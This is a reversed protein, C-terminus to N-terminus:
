DRVTLANLITKVADKIARHGGQNSLIIVGVQPDRSFELYSTFGATLGSKSWTRPESNHIDWSYGIDTMGDGSGRSTLTREIAGEVPYADLGCMIRMFRAMDEGTSLIEGAGDLVGMDSIGLDTRRDPGGYGTSINEDVRNLFEPVRTGTRNLNLPNIFRASLLEDYSSFGAADALAIGLLGSGLNSYTYRSGPPDTLTHGALFESLLERTYDTGPSTMPGILNDPFNPLSSYHTVLQELNIPQGEFDPATINLLHDNVPDDAQLPAQPREAFTALLLGTMVKSISGIQFVTQGDVPSGDIKRSGLGVVENVEPTVVAVVLGVSGEEGVLPGAIGQILERTRQEPTVELQTSGGEEEEMQTTQGSTVESQTSGGEQEVMSSPDDKGCSALTLILAFLLTLSPRIM